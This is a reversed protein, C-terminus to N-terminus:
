TSNRKKFFLFWLYRHERLQQGRKEGRKEGRRVYGWHGKGM